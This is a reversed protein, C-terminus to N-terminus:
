ISMIKEDLEDFKAWDKEAFSDHAGNKLQGARGWDIVRADGTENHIM